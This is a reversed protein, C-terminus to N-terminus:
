ARNIEMESLMVSAVFEPTYESYLSFVDRDESGSRTINVFNELLIIADDISGSEDLNLVDNYRSLFAISPCQDNKVTNVIPKEFSIYDVLKSPLQNAMRNGINVLFASGSLVCDLEDQPIQSHWRISDVDSYRNKLDAIEGFCYLDLIWEPHSNSVAAFLDLLFKPDRVEESLFGSYAFHIGSDRSQKQAYKRRFLKPFQVVHANKDNFGLEKIERYIIPTTFVADFTEYVDQESKMRLLKEEEPLVANTSFPDLQYLARKIGRLEMGRLAEAPEFSACTSIVWDPNWELEKFIGSVLCSKTKEDLSSKSQRISAIKDALYPLFAFPHNALQFRLGRKTMRRGLKLRTVPVKGNCASSSDSDSEWFTLVRVHHGRKLLVEFLKTLCQSTAGCTENYQNVVFLIRM